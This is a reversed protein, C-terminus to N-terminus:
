GPMAIDKQFKARLTDKAFDIFFITRGLYRKASPYILSVPISKLRFDQLLEVLVGKRILNEVQYSLFVGVGLGDVSHQIASDTNNTTFSTPVAIERVKGKVNFKWHKGKYLALNKIGKVRKLDIPLNIAPQTKLYDPSACIVPHVEGIRIAVIDPINIEGIRFAVDIGEEVLDTLKDQLLVNATVKPYKAMFANVVPMVHLRGFMVPAVIMMNGSPEVQQNCRRDALEGELGSMDKTIRRACEIYIAGEDTLRIKRTTRDFM